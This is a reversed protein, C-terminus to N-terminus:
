QRIVPLSMSVPGITAALEAMVANAVLMGNETLAISSDDSTLLGDDVLGALADGFVDIPDLGTSRRFAAISIGEVLRLQMLIIELMLTECSIEESEIEATGQEAMMRVYGNINAVNKYRRANVCGAASPGVGVYTQNRWYILNHKCPYGPIAFNSIEYRRLGADALVERTRVFMGAEVDEDCPIVSGANRQATLRTAPEYTLGYCAVHEVNLDIARRLSQLWRQVTQGPIAFILDLNINEIGNRRLVDVSPAIDDPTHLRELAALEDAFFSQAGMSVRTVGHEVLIRAKEDDVTAPNAEVTFEVVTAMDVCATVADLLRALECTPLVTPTGGGIFITSVHGRSSLRRHLEAIVADVLPAPDRDKLAV